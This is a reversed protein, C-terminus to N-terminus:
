SKLAMDLVQLVARQKREPLKQIEEIKRIWRRQPNPTKKRKPTVLSGGLLEDLTLGLANALKLLTQVPPECEDREYSCISRISVGIRDGLEGQTLGQQKRLGRIQEGLTKGNGARVPGKRSRTMVLMM